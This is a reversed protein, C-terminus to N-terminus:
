IVQRVTKEKSYEAGQLTSNESSLSRKNNNKNNINDDDGGGGDSHDKIRNVYFLPYHIRNLYEMIEM